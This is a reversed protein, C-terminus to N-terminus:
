PRDREGVPTSGGSRHADPRETDGGPAPEARAAGPRADDTPSADDEAVLQQFPTAPATESGPDGQSVLTEFLDRSTLMAERLQETTPEKAEERRASCYREVAAPHDVSLDGLRQERPADPYGRLVAVEDLLEDARRLAANPAEVFSAQVEDWRHRLGDRHDVPVPRVTFAQRRQERALLEEEAARRNKASDVTRDYERGFRRQLHRRVELRERRRKRVVVFVVVLVLLVVVAAVIWMWPEVASLDM